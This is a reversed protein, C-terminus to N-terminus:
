FSSDPERLFAAEELSTARGLVANRHPFRGFRAVIELHRRAAKLPAEEGLAEFLALARRQDAVSESHMYPMYLFKRTFGPLIQDHGHAIAHEAASRAAADAAYARPTGRFLNRPFQDLLLILALCPLPANLWADRRGAAADECDPLFRQRITADFAADRAFWVPNERGYAETGPAGFWFDVIEHPEAM